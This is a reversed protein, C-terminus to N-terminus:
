TLIFDLSLCITTSVLSSHRVFTFQIYLSYRVFTLYSNSYRVFSLYHNFGLKFTQRIHVSHTVFIQSFDLLIQIDLLLCITTLVLSSHRAFTFQIYLSYRIFTLYSISHRVFPLNHGFGFKFTQRFDLSHSDSDSDPALKKIPTESTTNHIM